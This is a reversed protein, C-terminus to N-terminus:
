PRMGMVLLIPPHAPDGFSETCLEVANAEIMREAV